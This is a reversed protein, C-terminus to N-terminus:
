ADRITHWYDVCSGWTLAPTDSMYCTPTALEQMHPPLEINAPGGWDLRPIQPPKAAEAVALAVAWPILDGAVTHFAM